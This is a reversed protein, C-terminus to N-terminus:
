IAQAESNICRVMYSIEKSTIGPHVPISTISSLLKDANPFSGKVLSFYERKNLVTHNYKTIDSPIGRKQLNNIFLLNGDGPFSLHLLLSYYNPRSDTIVQFPSVYNSTIQRVISSAHNTRILIQKEIDPIRAIGLAAQLSSLKYNVGYHKGTLNGLRSFERIKAALTRSQTLIFGGEGTSLIKRDHTSFCGIMGFTGYHKKKWMSGHSQACDEILPINHRRLIKLIATYNVPYGWLPAIIAAKTKKTIKRELDDPDFNCSDSDTDVLIPTAGTTCVPFVTPLTSVAPILVEDGPKVNLAYLAAHLAASGNSLAVAHKSRFYATLADEYRQVTEATGSLQKNKLAHNIQKEDSSSSHLYKDSIITKM